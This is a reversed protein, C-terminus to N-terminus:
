SHRKSLKKILEEAILKENKIVDDKKKDRAVYYTIPAKGIKRILGQEALRKLHRHTMVRGVGLVESIDNIRKPEKLYQLLKYIKEM